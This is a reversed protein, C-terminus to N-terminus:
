KEEKIFACCGTVDSAGHKKFIAWLCQSWFYDPGLILDPVEPLITKWFKKTACFLDAIPRFEGNQIRYAYTPKTLDIQGSVYSNPRTLMISSSDTKARQMAMRVADRLFPSRKTDGLVNLSDRGCIGPSLPLTEPHAVVSPKSDSYENWVHIVKSERTRNSLSDIAHCMWTARHPWDSYRCYWLHNPRWSSGNWLLPKDNALAFVPLDRVAWALHLPSSDTAILLDAREYLALLDYIRECQPLELIRFQQSFRGTVLERLLDAYPFPSSSGGLSLLLLPKQKGRKILDLGRLLKEERELSRKDIVLPLCDDWDGLRGALKWSEKQFSTAVAGTQGVAEYSHIKVAEVPGNIQTVVCDKAMGKALAVAKDLEYHPGDYVVRDVYSVGDLLSAYEAAVMLRSKEGTKQFDAYLLPLINLIDGNRGLTVYLKSM